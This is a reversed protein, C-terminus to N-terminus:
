SFSANLTIEIGNLVVVKVLLRCHTTIQKNVFLFYYLNDQACASTSTM